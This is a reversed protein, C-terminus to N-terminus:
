AQSDWTVTVKQNIKRHQHETCGIDRERGRHGTKAKRRTHSNGGTGSSALRHERKAYTAEPEASGKGVEEHAGAKSQGRM